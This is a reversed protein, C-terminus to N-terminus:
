AIARLEIRITPKSIWCQLINLDNECYSQRQRDRDISWVIYLVYRDEGSDAM